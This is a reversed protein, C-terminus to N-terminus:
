LLDDATLKFHKALVIADNKQLVFTTDEIFFLIDRKSSNMAKITDDAFEYDEINM